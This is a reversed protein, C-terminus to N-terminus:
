EMTEDGLTLYVTTGQNKQHTVWPGHGTFTVKYGEKELLTYASRLSLGLVWPPKGSPRYAATQIYNKQPILRVHTSTPRKPLSINLANYIPLVSALEALPHAPQRLTDYASAYRRQTPHLPLIAEAIERFIPAAVKGGYIEGAQPEDIVVICSYLPKDAPFFGVFSARYASTYAQNKVKKATGTKGALPYFSHRIDRATGKEVVYQLLTRLKRATSARMVQVPAPKPFPEPPQGVGQLSRVLRPAVWVGDNAIANYFALLQLPTLQINYGISLWPLTTANYLPHEPDILYPKPEGYLEIGTPELLRLRRLADYFAKPKRGYFHTVLKAIGINSSKELAEQWSTKGLPVVDRMVKDAVHWTGNGTQIYLNAPLLNDELLAALSAVKFTSGPEWRTAVADNYVERYNAMARIEGTRVEMVIAVGGKAQHQQIGKELAQSVIDQLYPDLTTFVDKGSRPFFEEPNELPVEVKGKLPKVWLYRSQGRLASNFSSELGRWGTTDNALYGLTIRALNGHPYFRKHEVVETILGGEYLLRHLLPLRQFAEVQPYTFIQKYGFLYFHRDHMLAAKRLAPFLDPRHLKQTMVRLSEQWNPIDLWLYPDVALRYFPMSTALLSGDCAILSGREGTIKRLYPSTFNRTEPQFALYALQGICVVFLAATGIAVLLLRKKIRSQM